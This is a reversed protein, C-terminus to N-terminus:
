PERERGQKEILADIIAQYFKNLDNLDVYKNQGKFVDVNFTENWLFMFDNKSIM